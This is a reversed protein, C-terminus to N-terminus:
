ENGKIVSKIGLTCQGWIIVYIRNINSALRSEREIYRRVRIELIVKNFESRVEEINLSKPNNNCYSFYKNDELDQILM